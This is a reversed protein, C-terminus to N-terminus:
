KHYGTGANISLARYIQEALMVRMLRHPFTMKSFSLRLDCSEKVTGALGHSSGIIFTVDRAADAIVAALEESCLQNGEVCLAVTYSSAPVRELIRAGEAALAARIEQGSPKEPLREEKIQVNRVRCYRGIRKEYEAVAEAYYKEKLDGVYIVTVNM